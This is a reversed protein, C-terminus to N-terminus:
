NDCDKKVHIKGFDKGAILVGQLHLQLNDYNDQRIQLQRAFAVPEADLPNFVQVVGANDSATAVEKGPDEDIVEGEIDTM